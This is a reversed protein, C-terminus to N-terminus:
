KSMGYRAVGEQRLYELMIDNPSRNGLSTKPTRNWDLRAAEVRAAYQAKTMNAEKKPDVRPDRKMRPPLVLGKIGALRQKDHKFSVELPSKGDSHYVGILQTECFTMLSPVLAPPLLRKDNDFAILSPVGVILRTPDSEIDACSSRAPVFVHMIAEISMDTRFDGYFIAYPWKFLSFEDMAAIGKMKGALEGWEDSFRTYHRFETGDVTIREFPRTVEIPEGSPAFKARAALRGYRKEYNEYTETKRIRMRVTEYDPCAPGIGEAGDEALMNWWRLVLAAADEMSPLNARDRWYHDKALEVLRDCITPLQSVGVPRGAKNVLVGISGGAEKLKKMWEMVSRAGPKGAFLTTLRRAVKRRASSNGGTFPLVPVAFCPTADIWERVATESQRMGARQAEKAWVFRYLSKPDRTVAAAIDLRELRDFRDREAKGSSPTTMRSWVYEQLFWARSPMAEGDIEDDLITFVTGDDGTMHIRTGVMGRFVLRTDLHYIVQGPTLPLGIDEIM